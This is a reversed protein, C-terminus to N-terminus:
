KWIKLKYGFRALDEQPDDGSQSRWLILEYKEWFLHIIGKCVKPGTICTKPKYHATPKRAAGFV